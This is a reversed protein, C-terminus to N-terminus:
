RPNAEGACWFVLKVKAFRITAALGARLYLWDGIRSGLDSPLHAATEPYPNPQFTRLARDCGWVLTIAIRFQSQRLSAPIGRSLLIIGLRSGPQLHIASHRFRFCAHRSQMESM